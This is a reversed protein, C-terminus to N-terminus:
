NYAINKEYRCGWKGNMIHLVPYEFVKFVVIGVSTCVFVMLISFFLPSTELSLIKLIRAVPGMVFGHILYTSFSADGVLILFGSFRSLGTSGAIDKALVCFLVSFCCVIIEWVLHLEPAVPFIKVSLVFLFLVFVVICSTNLWNVKPIFNFADLRSLPGIWAGVVFFILYNDTLLFIANSSFNESESILGTYRAWVLLMMVASVLTLRFKESFFLAGGLTLYFFMEYNLTWGVGLIPRMLGSVDAFPIFLLSYVFAEITPVAGQFALKLTYILTACWYLPVIRIFRRRLFFSVSAGGPELSKSSSFIIFGSICFFLKVGLEGLGYNGGGSDLADIKSKYTSVAHVYVVMGAAIARLVQLAEFRNKYGTM